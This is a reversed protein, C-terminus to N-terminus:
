KMSEDISGYQDNLTKQVRDAIAEEIKELTADKFEVSTTITDRIQATIKELYDADPPAFGWVKSEFQETEYNYYVQIKHAKVNNDADPLM